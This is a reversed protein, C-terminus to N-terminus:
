FIVFLLIILAIIGIWGVGKRIKVIEKLIQEDM